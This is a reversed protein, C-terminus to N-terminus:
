TNFFVENSTQYKIKYKFKESQIKYLLACQPSGRMLDVTQHLEFFNEVSIDNQYLIKKASYRTSSPVPRTYM